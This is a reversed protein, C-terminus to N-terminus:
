HSSKNFVTVPDAWASINLVLFVHTVWAWDLPQFMAVM